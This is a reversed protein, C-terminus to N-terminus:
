WNRSGSDGDVKSSQSGPWGPAAEITTVLRKEMAGLYLFKATTSIGFLLALAISVPAAISTTFPSLAVALLAFLEFLGFALDSSIRSGKRDLCLALASRLHLYLFLVVFAALGFDPMTLAMTILSMITTADASHILFAM